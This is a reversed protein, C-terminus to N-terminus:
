NYIAFSTASRWAGRTKNASSTPRPFVISAHKIKCRKIRVPRARRTKIRKGSDSCCWHNMSNNRRKLKHNLKTSVALSTSPVSSKISCWNNM